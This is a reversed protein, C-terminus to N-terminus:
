NKVLIVNKPDGEYLVNNVWLQHIEEKKWNFNGTLTDHSQNHWEIIISSKIYDGIKEKQYLNYSVKVHDAPDLDNRKHYFFYEDHTKVEKYYEYIKIQDLRVANPHDANLLSNGQADMLSINIDYYEAFESGLGEPLCCFRDDYTRCGFFLILFSFLFFKNMYNTQIANM